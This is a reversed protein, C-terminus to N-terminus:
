CLKQTRGMRGDVYILPDVEDCVRVDRVQGICISHTGFPIMTDLECMFSVQADRLWPALEGEVAWDGLEFRRERERPNAFRNAIEAQPSRLVNIAFHSADAIIAHMAAERNLCVLLSEPDASLSSVSTVTAGAPGDLGHATVVSVGAALRRM